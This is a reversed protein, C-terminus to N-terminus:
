LEEADNQIHEIDAGVDDRLDAVEKHMEDKLSEQGQQTFFLQKCAWLPADEGLESQIHQLSPADLGTRPDKADGRLKAGTQSRWKQGGRDSRSRDSMADIDTGNTTSGISGGKTGSSSADGSSQKTKQDMDDFPRKCCPCRRNYKELPASEQSDFSETDSVVTATWNKECDDM